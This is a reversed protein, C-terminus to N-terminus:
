KGNLNENIPEKFGFKRSQKLDDEAERVKNLKSYAISRYFYADGWNPNIKLATTFDSVAKEYDNLEIKAKGSNLWPGASYPDLALVINYDALAGSYDKLYYKTMGRNTYYSANNPQIKIAMSYAYLASDYNAKSYYAFGLNNYLNNNAQYENLAKRLLVIADDYKKLNLKVLSLNVYANDAMFLNINRYLTDYKLALSYYYEAKIEDGSQHYINGENFYPSSYIPCVHMASDYDALSQQLNGSHLYESGRSNLAAANGPNASIASSFFAVPDTYDNSHIYSIVAYFLIVPIFIKIIKDAKWKESVLDLLIGLTIFVGIVPLLTRHEFYEASFEAITFRFYLPPLTFGFFWLVGLILYPNKYLKYKITVSLFLIFIIIGLVISLKDFLPMTSLNFPLFMKGFTIPIAPLNKIFPAVGSLSSSQKETIAINRFFFYILITSFWITLFPLIEKWPRDKKLIFFFYFALLAPFILATEKSFFSLMIFISHFILHKNKKSNFYSAFSIASLLGFLTLYLDGQAPIWCVASTLLPHVSFILSLMLAIEKRIGLKNLFVFLTVSVLIILFLNTFHYAWPNKASIQSDIIFSVTQVPRYFNSQHSLYADSTFAKPLNDMNSILDYNDTILNTDDFNTFNYNLVKFYLALPLLIISLLFIRLRSKGAKIIDEPKNKKKYKM